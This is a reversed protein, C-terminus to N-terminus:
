VEETPAASFFEGWVQALESGISSLELLPDGAADRRVM